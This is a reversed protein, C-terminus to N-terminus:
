WRGGSYGKTAKNGGWGTLMLHCKSGNWGSNYWEVGGCQAKSDCEMQCKALSGAGATWRTQHIDRNYKNVCYNTYKKYTSRSTPDVYNENKEVRLGSVTRQWKPVALNEYPGYFTQKRGQARHHQYLTIKYQAPVDMGTMRDNGISKLQRIDYWGIKFLEKNGTYAQGNWVSVGADSRDNKQKYIKCEKDRTLVTSRHADKVNKCCSCWGKNKPDWTFTGDGGKCAATAKVKAACANVDAAYMLYQYNKCYAREKLVRPTQELTKPAIKSVKFIHHGAVASTVKGLVPYCSCGAAASYGMYGQDGCRAGSDIVRKACQEASEGAVKSLVVKNSGTANAMQLTAKLTPLSFSEPEAPYTYEPCKIPKNKEAEERRKKEAEAKAKARVSDRLARQALRLENWSLVWLRKALVWAYDVGKRAEILDRQIKMSTSYHKKVTDYDQSDYKVSIEEVFAKAVTYIPTAQKVHNKNTQNVLDTALGLLDTKKAVEAQAKERANAIMEQMKQTREKMREAAAKNAAAAAERAKKMKAWIERARINEQRLEDWRKKALARFKKAKEQTEKLVKLKAQMDIYKQKFVPIDAINCGCNEVKEKANETDLEAQEVKEDLEEEEDEAKENEEEATEENTQATKVNEDAETEAKVLAIKAKTTAEVTKKDDDFDKQITETQTSGGEKALKVAEDATKKTEAQEQEVEEEEEATEVEAVVEPEIEEDVKEKEDVAKKEEVVLTRTKESEKAMQQTADALKTTAEAATDYEQKAFELQQFDEEGEKIEEELVPM